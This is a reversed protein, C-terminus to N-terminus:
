IARKIIEKAWLKTYKPNLHEGDSSTGDKLYGKENCFADNCDVYYIYKKEKAFARLGDNIKELNSISAWSDRCAVKYSTHLIGHLIINAKPQAKHVMSIVYKYQKMLSSYPYGSENFGLMIYIQNYKYKKLVQALTVNKFHGEDSSKKKAINFVSYGTGCFYHAKGIRGWIQLGNTRSDGIFLTKNFYKETVKKKEVKEKAKAVTEPEATSEAVPEVADAVPELTEDPELTPLGMLDDVATFGAGADAQAIPEDFVQGMEMPALTEDPEATPVSRSLDTLASGSGEAMLQDLSPLGADSSLTQASASNNFVAMVGSEESDDFSDVLQALGAEDDDGLAAEGDEMAYEVDDFADGNEAEWAERDRAETVPSSDQLLMLPLAIDPASDYQPLDKLVTRRLAFGGSTVLASTIMIALMFRIGYYKRNRRKSM